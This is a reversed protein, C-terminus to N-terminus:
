EEGDVNPRVDGDVPTELIRFERPTRVIHARMSRRADVPSHEQIAMWIAEHDALSRELMSQGLRATATQFTRIERAMSTLARRLLHNGSARAVADHFAADAAVFREADGAATALRMASVQEGMTALDHPSARQAALYAAQTEIAERLEVLDRVTGQHLSLWSRILADLPAAVSEKLFIGKGPVTEILGSMELTRLGERLSTRGIGLLRSLEREPPIRDGPHLGREDILRRIQDVAADSLRRREGSLFMVMLCGRDAHDSRM